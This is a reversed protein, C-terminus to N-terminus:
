AMGAHAEGGKDDKQKAELARIQDRLAAAQEFAEDEIAKTLQERALLLQAAADNAQPGMEGQPRAGNHTDGRQMKRIMPILERSFVSYCNACGLRGTRQFMGIDSGCVPCRATPAAQAPATGLLSALLTDMTDPGMGGMPIGKMAACSACLHNERKQGGVIQTIHISAPKVKCHECLM